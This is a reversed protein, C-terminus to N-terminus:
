EREAAALWGNRCAHDGRLADRWQHRVYQDPGVRQVAGGCYDNGSAATDFSLQHPNNGAWWAAHGDVRFRERNERGSYGQGVIRRNSRAFEEDARVYERIADADWFYDRAAGCALGHTAVPVHAFAAARRKREPSKWCRMRCLKRLRFFHPRPKRSRGKSGCGRSGGNSLRAWVHRYFIVHVKIGMWDEQLLPASTQGPVDAFSLGLGRDGASIGAGAL